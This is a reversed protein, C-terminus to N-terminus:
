GIAEASLVDAEESWVDILGQEIADAISKNISEMIGKPDGEQVAIVYPVTPGLDAAECVMLEENAKEAYEKGSMFTYGGAGLFNIYSYLNLGYGFHVTGPVASGNKVFIRYGDPNASFLTSNDITIGTNSFDAGDENFTVCGWSGSSLFSGTIRNISKYDTTDYLGVCAGEVMEIDMDQILIAGKGVRVGLTHAKLSGNKLTTTQNASGAAAIEIGNGSTLGTTIKHGGFDVTCSYPLQIAGSAEIDKLLMINTNGDARVAAVLDAVTDVYAIEGSNEVKAIANPHLDTFAGSLVIQVIDNVTISGPDSALQRLGLKAEQLIQADFVTVKGDGNIDGTLNTAAASMLGTVLVLVLLLLWIPNVRNKKM